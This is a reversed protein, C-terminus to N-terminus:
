AEFMGRLTDIFEKQKVEDIISFLKKPSGTLSKMDNKRVFNPNIEVKITYKAIDNMIEIVDLLKIGRGSCINMTESNINSELIRKYCECIFGIDNFERSIDLNGLEIIRKAERFHNVIKPILFNKNQGVGTYNFPRTIIINLKNFYNQALVEMSYKSAGYHNTPKPCLSENLVEVGQNGYITASSSLIIKKPKINLEVLIDLINISGITNVRYFDENDGHAPFSIGALHIIYNPNIEQITKRIDEKRTIDCSKRNTSFINYGSNKLYSSLHVGTFSDIGIILVRNSVLDLSM